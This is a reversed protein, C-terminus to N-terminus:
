AVRYNVPNRFQEKAALNQCGEPQASEARGIMIMETLLGHYYYTGEFFVM